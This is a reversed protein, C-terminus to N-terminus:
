IRSIYDKLKEVSEKFNYVETVLRKGTRAKEAAMEPESQMRHINCAMNEIDLYPSLLGAEDSVFEQCGGTKEFGLIPKECIAAELMVLPFPDERSSVVFLDLADIIEVAKPTPEIFSIQEGVGLKELDYAVNEYYAGEKRMGIWVFHVPDPWAKKQYAAVLQVYIDLGKRWEANGCAGVLFCNEPLGFAKKIAKKDNKAIRTLIGENDIFSHIVEIKEAPVCHKEVLNEKVANSCAIIGKSESFIAQRSAQHAYLNLSFELEHIHTILPIGLASKTALALDASAITNAYIFDFQSEKFLESLAKQEKKGELGLARKVKGKLKSGPENDMARVTCVAEFDPLLPGWKIGCLLQM